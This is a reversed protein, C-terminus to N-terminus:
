RKGFVNREKASFSGLPSFFSMLRSQYAPITETLRSQSPKKSLGSAKQIIRLLVVFM